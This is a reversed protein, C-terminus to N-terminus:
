IREVPRQGFLGYPRILLVAIMVVYPAITYFNHGLAPINSEYGQTLLEVIGITLGGIVAGLPSELGGIIIAPFAALAIDGTTPDLGRPFATLFIGAITAIGAALGWSLANVRRVPIGVALAAEEDVSTARTALGYRSFRDFCFFGALVIATVIISWINVWTFVVGGVTLEGTGIPDGTGDPRQNVGFIAPVLATIAINLGITIMVVTFVPQGTVRRLVFVQFLVGVMVMAAVGIAAALFWPVSKDIVMYSILYAGLLLLSGQAFNIVRSARYIAVFGLAVLAYLCGVSVGEFLLQVLKTM